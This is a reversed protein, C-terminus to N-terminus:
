RPPEETTAGTEPALTAAVALAAEYVPARGFVRLEDALLAAEDPVAAYAMRCMRPLGPLESCTTLELEDVREVWFVGGNGGDAVLDVRGLGRAAHRARVPRLTLVVERRQVREGARITARWGGARDRAPLLEGPPQWGLRSGLWGAFLLAASLGSRGENDTQGYTITVEDLAALAQRTHPPDFFQSVLQRWPTLRAWAFDSLKPCGGERGLLEVLARLEVGPNAAAATDVMLRDSVAVLDDFLPSGVVSEGAWWLFDPLDAVLLPSAISALQRESAASVEVTVCEFRVAPRGKGGPQELLAVRVDLGPEPAPGRAPDAVLITARSPYLESLRTVADEIRRSAARSRAVATLNFTSARMQVSAALTDDERRAVETVSRRDDSHEAWLRNLAATIAGADVVHAQWTAGPLPRAPPRQRTTTAALSTAV